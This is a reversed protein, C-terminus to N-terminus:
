TLKEILIDALWFGLGGFVSLFSIGVLIGILPDKIECIINIALMFLFTYTMILFMVLINKLLNM